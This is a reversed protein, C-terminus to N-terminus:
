IDRHHEASRGGLAFHRQSGPCGNGFRQTEEPMVHTFEIRRIHRPRQRWLGVNNKQRQVPSVAFVAGNLFL